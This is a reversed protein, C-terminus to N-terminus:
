RLKSLRLECKQIRTYNRRGNRDMCKIAYRITTKNASKLADRFKFGDIPLDIIRTALLRDILERPM